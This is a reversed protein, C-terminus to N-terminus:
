SASIQYMSMRHCFSAIFLYESSVNVARKQNMFDIRQNMEVSHSRAQKMKIAPKTIRADALAKKSTATVVEVIVLILNMAATSMWTIM